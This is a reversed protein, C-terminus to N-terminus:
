NTAENAALFFPHRLLFFLCPLFSWASIGFLGLVWDGGDNVRDGIKADKDVSGGGSLATPV